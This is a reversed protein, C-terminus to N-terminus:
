FVSSLFSSFLWLLNLKLSLLNNIVFPNGVSRSDSMSLTRVRRSLSFRAIFILFHSSACGLM